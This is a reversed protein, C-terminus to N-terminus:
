QGNLTARDGALNAEQECVFAGNITNAYWRQGKFHYIGSSLNLRVVTDQPCHTEAQQENQFLTLTPAPYGSGAPYRSASQSQAPADTTRAIKCAPLLLALVLLSRAFSVFLKQKMSPRIVLIRVDEWHDDPDTKTAGRRRPARTPTGDGV